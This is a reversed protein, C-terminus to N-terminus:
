PKDHRTNTQRATIIGFFFVYVCYDRVCICVFVYVCRDHNAFKKPGSPSINGKSKCKENKCIMITSYGIRSLFVSSVVFGLCVFVSCSLGWVHYVYSM